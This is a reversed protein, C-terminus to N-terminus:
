GGVVGTAESVATTKGASNTGTVAIALTSGIDDASVAYSASTAGSIPVCSGGNANCREWQYSFASSGTWTGPLVGVVEGTVPASSVVPPDTNVPPPLPPTLAATIRAAMKAALGTAGVEPLGTNASIYIAVSLVSGVRVFEEGVVATKGKTTLGLVIELADDGAKLKRARLLKLKAGKLTDSSGIAKTTESTLAARGAPSSIVADLQEFAGTVVSETKAVAVVNILLVLQKNDFKPLFFAREYSNGSAIFSSSSSAAGQDLVKGSQFDAATLAMDSAKPAVGAAAASSVAVAAVLATVMVFRRRVVGVTYAGRSGTM